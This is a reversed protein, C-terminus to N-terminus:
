IASELVGALAKLGAPDHFYSMHDCAVLRVDLPRKRGPAIKKMSAVSVAVDNEEHLFFPNAIKHLFDPSALRAVLRAVLSPKDPGASAVAAPILSTNGAVMVYPIGPDPSKNLEALVPATSLMENLAVTPNEMWGTLGGIVSAPWPIATLHNLALGLAVTAWDVVRPWPSGGNPTGLMVLRQVIKNGGEREIFWRSVLGGMSHAAIELTKGHGAGLGTAELREKLLRGNEEIKTNLNEYDFTLVLDYLAALPRRSDALKALQVSPAMSQTDGIIGHVFLLIRKAKAVRKRVEVSDCVSQVTGDAAVDAAALIPYDFDLGVVKSIVKEFFIKIAGTLSRTTGELAPPLRDLAIETENASRSKVRGVPLFFEGDYAVPLVHENAQLGIPVSIVLPEQPTVVSPDEIGSLELVSLGPDSGRTTTFTLPQCVSPDDYLLPPLTVTAFGRTALPASSLRAQAKLRPHPHLKVGAQMTAAARGKQPVPTTALPRVTTFSVEATQWDDIVASESEGVERTQIKRMLRNLSGDRSIGRTEGRNIFDAARARPMDLSPQELLRADFQDTCIILKLLDKYEIIGLQWVEKPVTAPIPQDQNGWATQGPELKVCGARQLGAHVRYRQTLDLLACYLTRSSNNTMSVKFTPEVEKGDKDLAYALRIEKEAVENGNVLITLKVEDPKISSAPNILRATQTWRAMHELREVARKAGAANLGDIQGVLPRDDNPRAIVFQDDSAILRFEPTDGKKPERIFLSPKGDPSATKIAARVLACAKADGELVVSLTPAPLSVIVAKYTTKPDLKAKKEVVLRSTAPLVEKVKAMALAKSPDSLDAAPADFRYLAVRAFDSGSPAPIGSTAGGSLTWQENQYRAAFTAPMPQIAGDLFTADLDENQTAELQPSQNRVVNAVLSSTRTFLDRYTPVGAASKLADGLFFSFAGRSKGDGNYEKAEEDDRCAAFLVHRGEPSFYRSAGKAKAARSASAAEAEAATVLFSSIPRNRRDLPARRATTEVERTGSGSHCCDLIVAFHPGNAAVEAILKAIEKDALDWSGEKRSDFLVLTEDLHDPELTWFEPPAQEQSGHGSYYFLAVDGKKAKGLHNRFADVVAKRTAKANKLTKLNLKVSKDGRVRESLYASFAEIDNVCGRLQPIDDPYNDIGVLLAHITRSM